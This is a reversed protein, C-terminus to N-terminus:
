LPLSCTIREVINGVGYALAIFSLLTNQLGETERTTKPTRFFDFMGVATVLACSCYYVPIFNAAMRPNSGLMNLPLILELAIVLRTIWRIAKPNTIYKM